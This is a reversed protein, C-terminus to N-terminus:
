MLNFSHITLLNFLLYRFAHMRNEIEHETDYIYLQAFKPKEGIPPLMSGMRHCTQGQIVLNPPGRGGNVRDDMKMGPSTFSFMSNYVRANKQFLKSHPSTQDFLLHQLIPPPAKLPPLQVKDNACCLQFVPITTNRSKNKREQYWMCAGCHPCEWIPDGIDDYGIVFLSGQTLFLTILQNFIITLV